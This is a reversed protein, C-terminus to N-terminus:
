NDEPLDLENRTSEPLPTATFAADEFQRYIEARRFELSRLNRELHITGEGVVTARAYERLDALQASLLDTLHGALTEIITVRRTISM